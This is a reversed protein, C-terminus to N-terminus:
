PCLERRWSVGWGGGDGNFGLIQWTLALHIDLRRSLKLKSPSFQTGLWASSSGPLGHSISESTVGEVGDRQWEEM